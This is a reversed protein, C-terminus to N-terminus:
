AAEEQTRGDDDRGIDFAFAEIFGSKASKM